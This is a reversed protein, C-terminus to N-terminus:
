KDAGVMVNSAKIVAYATEGVKLGLEKISENTISASIVVEPAVEIKVIGNTAGETIEVVKGAFQNRASLKMFGHRESLFTCISLCEVRRIKQVMLLFWFNRLYSAFKINDAGGAEEKAESSGCIVYLFTPKFGAM